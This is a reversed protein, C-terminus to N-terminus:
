INCRCTARVTAARKVPFVDGCLKALCSARRSRPGSRARKLRASTWRFTRETGHMGHGIVRRTTAVFAPLSFTCAARLFAFFVFFFYLFHSGSTQTSAELFLLKVLAPCQEKCKPSCLVSKQLSDRLINLYSIQSDSFIPNWHSANLLYSFFLRFTSCFSVM